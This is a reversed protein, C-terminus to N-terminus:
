SGEVYEYKWATYAAIKQQYEYAYGFRRGSADMYNFPSEYWGVRVLEGGVQQARAPFPILLAVVFAMLAALRVSRTLRSPNLM